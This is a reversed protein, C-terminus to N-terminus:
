DVQMGKFERYAQFAVFMAGIQFFFYFILFLATFTAWGGAKFAEKLAGSQIMGGITVFLQIMNLIHFVQFFLLNCYDMRKAACWLILISIAESLGMSISIIMLIIAVVAEAAMLYYLRQQHKLGAATPTVMPQMDM